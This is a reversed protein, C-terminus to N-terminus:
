NLIERNEDTTGNSVKEDVVLIINLIRLKEEKKRDNIIVKKYELFFLSFNLNFFSM